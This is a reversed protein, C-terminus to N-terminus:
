SNPTITLIVVDSYSGARTDIQSIASALSFLLGSTAAGGTVFNFEASQNAPGGNAVSLSYPIVPNPNVAQNRLRFGNLTKINLTATPTNCRSTVNALNQNSTTDLRVGVVPATNLALECLPPIIGTATIQVSDAAMAPSALAAPTLMAVAMLKKM